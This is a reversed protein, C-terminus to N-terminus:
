KLKEKLDRIETIIVDYKESFKSLLEQSNELMNQLKAERNENAKMTYWFLIIFLAAFPGQTIFYKWLETEM